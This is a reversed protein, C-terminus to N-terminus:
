TALDRLEDGQVPRGTVTAQAVLWRVVANEMSEGDRAGINNRRALERVVAGLRVRREAIVRLEAAISERSAPDAVAADMQSEAAQSIARFEREILRPALTFGYASDLYDLVQHRLHDDFIERAAEATVGTAELDAGSATLRELTLQRFDIDPLDPLHTVTIRFELDGSAAGATLEIGSALGGLAFIRDAAQAALQNAVELRAAPGYRQEMVGPPIKGPRFGPLRITKGRANLNAAVRERVRGSSFHARYVRTADNREIEAIDFGLLTQEESM